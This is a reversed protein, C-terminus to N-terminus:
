VRFDAADKLDEPRLRRVGTWEARFLEEMTTLIEPPLRKVLEEVPPLDDPPAEGTAGDEEIV